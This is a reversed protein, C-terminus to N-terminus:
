DAWLSNIFNFVKTLKVLMKHMAKVGFDKQWFFEFAFLCNTSFQKFNCKQLFPQEYFKTSISVLAWNWWREIYMCSKCQCIGFTYFSMSSKVRNKISEPDILAFATSLFNIFNVSPTLACFICDLRIDKKCNQSRHKYFRSM